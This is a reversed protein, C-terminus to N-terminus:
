KLKLTDPDKNVEKKLNAKFSDISILEGVSDNQINLHSKIKEAQKKQNNANGCSSIFLIILIFVKNM